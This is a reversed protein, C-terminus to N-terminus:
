LNIDKEGDQANPLYLRHGDMPGIPPISDFDFSDYANNNLEFNLNTSSPAPSSYSTSASSLASSIHGGVFLSSSPRPNGAHSVSRSTNIQALKLEHEMRLKDHELQIKEMRFEAKRKDKEVQIKEHARIWAIDTEKAAELRKMKMDMSKQVTEEQAKAVDSFKEIITRSKKPERKVAPTSTGAHAATKMDTASKRKTSVQVALDDQDKISEPTANIDESTDAGEAKFEDESPGWSILVEEDDDCKGAGTGIYSSMDIESLSHGIGVPIINPRESVLDKMEFFWPSSDRILEVLYTLQIQQRHLRVEDHEGLKNTFTNPKEMNIQDESAIGAGTEGLEAIHKM